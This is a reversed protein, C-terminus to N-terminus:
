IFFQIVTEFANNNKNNEDAGFRAMISHKPSVADLQQLRNVLDKGLQV